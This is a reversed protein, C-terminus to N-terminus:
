PRQRHGGACPGIVVARPSTGGLSAIEVYNRRRDARRRSSYNDPTEFLLSDNWIAAGRSAIHTGGRTKWFYHWLERGDRADMAWTHDPSTVYIVGDVELISGKVAPPPIPFDGKGEGSVITRPDRASDNLRVAWALTLHKVTDRNIQTLRSYRQGTYDGSYTPWDQSLPQALTSPPVLPAQQAGLLVPALVAVLVSLAGSPKASSM